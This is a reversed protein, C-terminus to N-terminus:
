AGAARRQCAGAQRHSHPIGRAASDAGASVSIPRAETEVVVGPFYTPPYRLAGSDDGAKGFATDRAIVFYQGAPLGSLRFEGRDDTYATAAAVLPKRAEPLRLSLAEVLAGALPSGDEDQLRGPITGAAQLVLAVGTRREGAAVRVPAGRASGGVLAYGSRVALVDYEGAPIGSFEYQGQADSLTVRTQPLAPSSLIVRARAVPAGNSQATVIGAISAPPAKEPPKRAHDRGAGRPEALALAGASTFLTATVIAVAAAGVRM